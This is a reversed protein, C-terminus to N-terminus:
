FEARGTLWSGGDVVVVAGTIYSAADSALFLVTHAVETTSGLRRLPNSHAPFKDDGGTIRQVGETGAMGGPAVVNVRVGAPGWEIACTRTLADIGAKASVVHAQMAMGRYQTAATINVVAGGHDSMWREYAAKSANFTGRLDIDVVAKFGNPSLDSILAPFNGAANNVLIDLSGFDAIVSDVVKELADFERVDCVDYRADIGDDRLIRVAAQLNPEKRSCLAVRAGHHGLVRCTELGLGTAGGTVLAVKGDLLDSRFPSQSTTM